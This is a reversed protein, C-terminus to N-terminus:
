EIHLQWGELLEGIGNLLREKNLHRIDRTASLLLEDLSGFYTERLPKKLKPFMNFDPLSLILAIIHIAFHKGSTILSYISSQNGLM